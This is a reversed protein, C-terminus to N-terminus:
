LLRPAKVLLRTECAVETLGNRFFVADYTCYRVLYTNRNRHIPINEISFVDHTLDLIEDFSTNELQTLCKSRASVVPNQSRMLNSIDVLAKVLQM